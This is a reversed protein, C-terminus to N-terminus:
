AHHIVWAIGQYARWGLYVATGAIMVKFHWPIHRRALHEGCEPCEGDDTLADDSVM